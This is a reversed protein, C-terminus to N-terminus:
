GQAAELAEQFDPVTSVNVWEKDWTEVPDQLEGSDPDVYRFTQFIWDGGTVVGAEILEKIDDTSLDAMQEPVEDGETYAPQVIWVREDMEAMREAEEAAMAKRARAPEILAM